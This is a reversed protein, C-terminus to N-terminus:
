GERGTMVFSDILRRRFQAAIGSSVVGYSHERKVRTAHGLTLYPSRILSDNVSNRLLVLLYRGM